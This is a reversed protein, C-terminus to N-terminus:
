EDEEEENLEEDEDGEEDEEGFDDEEEAGNANAAQWNPGWLFTAWQTPALWAPTEGTGGTGGTVWGAVTNFVGGAGAQQPVFGGMVQANDNEAAQGRAEWQPDVPLPVFAKTPDDVSVLRVYDVTM